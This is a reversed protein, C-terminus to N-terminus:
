FNIRVYNQVEEIINNPTSAGATIGVSCAPGIQEGELDSLTQIFYTNECEERCIEYLKRTNSSHTGGIVIMVDVERAIERAQTQREETANCITNVVIGDYGKKEFIEVLEQFKNYNFTTQSVICAKEGENLTLNEMEEKTAIVTADGDVWGMIGEVEPHPSSGIIVIHRGKKSEEEVIKHIKKVFPCTADILSFGMKEIQEYVKKEVGHSRIIVTGKEQEKLEDVDKLVRVGKEELDKVVQDNHIIPGLTYINGGAEIQKYVQEVARKVGFCFGATKATKVEM